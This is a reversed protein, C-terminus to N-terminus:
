EARDKGDTRRRRKVYGPIGAAQRYKSVTRRSLRCGERGLLTCLEEDTLPSAPDEKGILEEIRRRASDAAVAEDADAGPLARQFFHKLPYLGYPTAVYKDQVVRSVTSVNVGMEDALQQMTLPRLSQPGCRFFDGQLTVLSLAARHLTQRRIDVSHILSRAANLCSRLYQRDDASLDQRQMLSLYEESLRLPNDTEGAVSVLLEGGSQRVLVDPQIYPVQAAKEDCNGPRPELTRIYDFAERVARRTAGFRAACGAADEDCVARLDECIIRRALEAHPFGDEVQLCLAEYVDRAAIGRPQFGRITRLVREGVAPPQCYLLCITNLDGTFYGSDDLNGLIDLGIAEEVPSLRCLSLQLKLSGYLEDAEFCAGCGYYPDPQEDEGGHRSVEADYYGPDRGREIATRGASSRSRFEGFSEPRPPEPIELLPNSMSLEVLYDYLLQTPLSLMHLGQILSASVRQEQRQSQSYGGRMALPDVVSEQVFQRMTRDSQGVM